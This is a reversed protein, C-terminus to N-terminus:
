SRLGGQSSDPEDPSPLWGLPHSITLTSHVDAIGCWCTWRYGDWLCEEWKTGEPVYSGYTYHMPQFKLLIRTGDKPASEM